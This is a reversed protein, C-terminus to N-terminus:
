AYDYFRPALWGYVAIGAALWVGGHLIAAGIMPWALGGDLLLSRWAEMLGSFPNLMMWPRWAAPVQDIRYIVPTCYLTFALVVRVLHEMDRLVMNLSGVLLTLGLLLVVQVVFLLVMGPLWVWHPHIGSLALILAVVPLAAAFQWGDQLVQGAAMLWHPFRVKKILDRSGSFARTGASVSNGAWHWAFLGTVLFAVMDPRHLPLVVHFAFAFVLTMGLPHGLSWLYGLWSNKYRIKVQSAAIVMGMELLRGLAAARSM